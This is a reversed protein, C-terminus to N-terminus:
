GDVRDVQLLELPHGLELGVLRRGRWAVLNGVLTGSLAEVRKHVFGVLAPREVVKSSGLRGPVSRLFMLNPRIVGGDHVLVFVLDIISEVLNSAGM